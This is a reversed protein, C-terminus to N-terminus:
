SAGVMNGAYKRLIDKRNAPATVKSLAEFANELHQQKREEARSELDYKEVLERLITQRDQPSIASDHLNKDFRTDALEVAKAMFYGGPLGEESHLDCLDAFLREAIGLEAGFRRLHRRDAAGGKGIAAGLETIFGDFVAVNKFLYDFYSAEDKRIYMLEKQRGEIVRMTCGIFNRMLAAMEPSDIESMFQCSCILMVDGSLIVTNPGWKEHVAQNGNRSGYELILDDNMRIFQRFLEVGLAPRLSEHVEEDGFLHSCLLTLIAGSHHDEHSMLYHIPDYLERPSRGEGVKKIEEKVLESIQEITM